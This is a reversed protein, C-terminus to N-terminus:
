NHGTENSNLRINQQPMVIEAYYKLANMINDSKIGTFPFSHSSDKYILIMIDNLWAAFDFKQDTYEFLYFAFEYTNQVLLEAKETSGALRIANSYVLDMCELALNEFVQQQIESM